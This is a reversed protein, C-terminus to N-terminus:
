CPNYYFLLIVFYCFLLIVFYCFLLIVFYCFLILINYVTIIGFFNLVMPVSLISLARINTDLKVGPVTHEEVDEVVDDDKGHHFFYKLQKERRRTALLEVCVVLPPPLFFYLRILFLVFRYLLLYNKNIYFNDSNKNCNLKARITVFYCFLLM